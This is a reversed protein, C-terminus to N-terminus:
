GKKAEFPETGCKPCALVNGHKEVKAGCNPCGAAAKKEMESGSADVGYKDMIPETLVSRGYRAQIADKLAAAKTFSVNYKRDVVVRVKRSEGKVFTGNSLAVTGGKSLWIYIEGLGDLRVTHMDLLHNRMVRIFENTVVSVDSQKMGLLRAVERDMESKPHIARDRSKRRGNM